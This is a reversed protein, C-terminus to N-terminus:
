SASSSIAMSEIGPTELSPSAERIRAQSRAMSNRMGATATKGLMSGDNFFGM